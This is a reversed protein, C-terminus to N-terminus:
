PLARLIQIVTEENRTEQKTQNGFGKSKPDTFETIFHRQRPNLRKSIKRGDPKKLKGNKGSM